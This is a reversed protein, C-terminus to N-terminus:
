GKEGGKEKGKGAGERRAWKSFGGGEEEVNCFQGGYMEQSFQISIFKTLSLWSSM